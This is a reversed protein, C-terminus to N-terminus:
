TLFQDMLQVAALEGDVAIEGDMQTLAGLYSPVSLTGLTQFSPPLATGSLIKNNITNIVNQQNQSTGTPTALDVVSQGYFLYVDHANYSLAADHQASGRRQLLSLISLM